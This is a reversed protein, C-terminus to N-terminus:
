ESIGAQQVRRRQVFGEITFVIVGAWIFAFGVMRQAGFHENYVFVGLLFQITPGIYQILGIVTLKLRKVGAAFCILPLASAAGASILLAHTGADVSGFAGGTTAHMYALIALGPLFLLSCELGLGEIAGLTAKRKIVSYISFSGALLLAIWPLQGYSVTLWVVGVAAIGVSVWQGRRLTERLFVAGMIVNFLPNIFYGLATEVIFGANVAWIYLGWNFGIFVTAAAYVGLVRPQRVVQGIWATRGLALLLGGVFVLSWVMRHGVLELSDVHSLTKWFLPFMGWMVFASVAYLLGRGSEDQPAPNPAPESTM